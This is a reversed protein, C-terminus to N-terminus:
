EMETLTIVTRTMPGRTFVPPTLECWKASDDILLGLLVLADLLSKWVNDPDPFRGRAKVIELGVRRKGIAKPVKAVISYCAVLELDRQKIRAARSWHNSRKTLDNVTAPRWLPVEIKWERATRVM